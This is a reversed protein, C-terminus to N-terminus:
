IWAIFSFLMEVIEKRRAAPAAIKKENLLGGALPMPPNLFRVTRGLSM